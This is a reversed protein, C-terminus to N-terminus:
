NNASSARIVFSQSIAKCFLKLVLAYLIPTIAVAIGIGTQNPHQNMHEFVHILSLVSGILGAFLSLDGLSKFVHSSKLNTDSTTNRSGTLTAKLAGFLTEKPYAILLAGFAGGFVIIFSNLQILSSIKGGELLTGVGIFTMGILLGMFLRMLNRGDLFHSLYNRIQNRNGQHIKAFEDKLSQAEGFSKCALNLADTESMGSTLCNEIENRIHDEIEQLDSHSIFRKELLNRLFIKIQEDLNYM